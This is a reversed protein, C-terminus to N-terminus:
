GRLLGAFNDRMIKQIDEHSTDLDRLIGLQEHLLNNRFGRPFTGSDTGFLIREPGGTALYKRFVQKLSLNPYPLYRYWINSSSTDVYVNDTQYFLFLIERVFGGGLHALIFNVGPFDRAILQVNLPNLYQLDGGGILLGSHMIIPLNHKEAFEYIPRFKEDYVHLHADGPIMKIGKVGYKSVAIKLVELPDKDEEIYLFVFGIFRDSFRTVAGLSELDRSFLTIKDISIGNQSYKKMEAIWKKALVIPNDPPLEFRTDQLGLRKRREGFQKEMEELTIGEEKARKELQKRSFYHAHCDWVHLVDPTM